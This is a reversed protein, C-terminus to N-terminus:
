TQTQAERIGVVFPTIDQVFQISMVRKVIFSHAREDFDLGKFIDLFSLFSSGMTGIAGM